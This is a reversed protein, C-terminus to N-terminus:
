LTALILRLSTCLTGFYGRYFLLPDNTNSQRISGSVGSFQPCVARLLISLYFPQSLLLRWPSNGPFFPCLSPSPGGSHYCM